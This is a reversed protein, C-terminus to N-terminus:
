EESGGPHDREHRITTTKAGTPPLVIGAFPDSPPSKAGIRGTASSTAYRGPGSAKPDRIRESQANFTEDDHPQM